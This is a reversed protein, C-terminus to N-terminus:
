PSASSQKRALVIYHAGGSRIVPVGRNALSQLLRHARIGMARPLFEQGFVNFPGFGLTIGKLKELEALALLGDCQHPSTLYARAGRKRQVPWLARKVLRGAPSLLPNARPSPNLLRHLGWCNDISVILYGAPRLVRVMERIPKEIEPIWPLVGVAIVLDFTEEPFTLSQIDALETKVSSELGAIVARQRTAEVMVQVTDTADVTYGMKALAVAAYGAGCGVELVRAGRALGIKEVLDLVIRLREQYIVESVGQREYIDAWYSAVEEFYNNVVNQQDEIKGKSSIQLNKLPRMGFLRGQM